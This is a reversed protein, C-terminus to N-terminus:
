EWRFVRFAIIYIVIIWVGIILLQPGLDFISRGETVIMRISEVIPTLPIFRTISQLWEPMLFVPFFVGSLFMMPFSVLQALPAAQNETKAWGGVALGIGFMLTAGLLVIAAFSAYNGRMSLDFFILAAIFMVAVALIGVAANSIVNGTFYQWVKLTTTHYRRLVGKEKLRPFTTTPGFIGLSLLTFGLLGAFVYDFRTLGKTATSETRVSFPTQNQVFQANIEDFMAELVAQLTQGAQENNQDYLVTIQGTPYQGGNTEGFNEPLILTASIESRNMKERAQDLTTVEEDVDLVESDKAQQVFQTAFESSSQNLLGVKFSVNDNGGFIGGFVLLFILPFVFVFFIAVKDRFLRRIDIPVFVAIPLFAKKLRKKM